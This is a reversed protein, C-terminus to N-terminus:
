KRILRAAFAGDHGSELSISERTTDLTFDPHRSLFAKVQEDNEEPENSCTSYILVGGPAVLPAVQDLIEAQLKVLAALKEVSWNWRADPRRRLVGTNSCPADVLIKTGLAQHKTSLASVCPLQEIVEVQDALGVRKLNEDLKRRRKPNVECATM